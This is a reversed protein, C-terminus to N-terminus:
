VTAQRAVTPGKGLILYAATVTVKQLLAMATPDHQTISKLTGSPKPTTTSGLHPSYNEAICLLLWQVELQLWLNIVIQGLFLLGVHIMNSFVEPRLFLLEGGGGVGQRGGARGCGGM